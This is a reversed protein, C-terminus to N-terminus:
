GEPPPPPCIVSDGKARCFMGLMKNIRKEAIDIYTPNIEFGVYNRDNLGAAVATTGAGMFPDLVVDGPKTSAKICLEPIELPFAAYHAQRLPRIGITWVSRRNAKLKVLHERSYNKWNTNLDNSRRGSYKKYPEAPWLPGGGHQPSGPFGRHSYKSKFTAKALRKDRLTSASLNTKIADADYYYKPSKSFMFIYEHSRTCRDKVSEPMANSKSWIIDQRLYWGNQRLALAVTWPMGILDKPKLGQKKGKPWFSDGLVLWALGDEKLVRKVQDFVTVLKQVYDAVSDEM